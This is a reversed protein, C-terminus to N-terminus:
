SLLYILGFLAPLLIVGFRDDVCDLFDASHALEFKIGFVRIIQLKDDVGFIYVLCLPEVLGLHAEVAEVPKVFWFLLFGSLIRLNYVFIRGLNLLIRLLLGLM